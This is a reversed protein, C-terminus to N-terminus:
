LPVIICNLICQLEVTTNQTNLIVIQAPEVEKIIQINGIDVTKCNATEM